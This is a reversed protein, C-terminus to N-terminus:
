PSGGSSKKKTAAKKKPATAPKTEPAKADPKVTPTPAAAPADGGPKVRSGGGGQDPSGSPAGAAPPPPTASAPIPSGPTRPTVADIIGKFEDKLQKVERQRSIMLRKLDDDTDEKQSWAVDVNGVDARIVTDYLKAKVDKFSAALAAGGQSRSDGQLQALEQKYAAADRRADAMTQKLSALGQDVTSDLQRELQDLQDALKMARDAQASARQARQEADQAAKLQRRVDRARTVNDDGVGALDKGLTLERQIATLERDIGVAESAAAGLTSDISSKQAAALDPTDAAYKRLAVAMAQASDIAAIIEQTTQEIVDYQSRANTVADAFAQEPSPMSAYQQALQRRTASPGGVDGARDNLQNRIKILEDQIAGIRARRAGIAPYVATRDKAAIVAELRAITAEADAINAEIEGLDNEVAVARQVEPEERLYTVAAEPLPPAIMFVGSSRGAIQALYQEPNANSDLMRTLARYAPEYLDHTETFVRTAKDYEVAPDQKSDLTITGEVQASRIMQAKRVRLNGELIRLTATRNSAPDAEALLELARLAKDFQKSKVYVWAVEYLADAFLDSHRDIRLYADISKGMQDREYHLRALALHAHEIVRRDATTRPKKDVLATFLETAAALDRKAVLAAGVYYQAQLDQESGQPVNRFQTLAEDHKGQSYAWKGRTYVGAAGGALGNLFSDVDTTDRQAIAIEVLRQLSRQYYKGATNKAVQVFYARAAGKDGKQFLSEGLYYTATEQDAGATNALDFLTLSAQDYDGLSFAIQADVLRKPSASAPNTLQPLDSAIQRAEAEYATLQSDVDARATTALVLPAVVAAAFLVRRMLGVRGRRRSDM